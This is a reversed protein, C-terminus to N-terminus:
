PPTRVCERWDLALIRGDHGNCSCIKRVFRKGLADLVRAPVTRWDVAILETIEKLTNVAAISFAFRCNLDVEYETAALTNGLNGGTKCTSYLNLRGSSDREKSLVNTYVGAEDWGIFIRDHADCCEFLATALELTIDVSEHGEAVAVIGADAMIKVLYQKKDRIFSAVFRQIMGEADPVVVTVDVVTEAKDHLYDHFIPVNQLINLSPLFPAVKPSIHAKATLTYFRDLNNRRKKVREEHERALRSKRRDAVMQDFIAISKWAATQILILQDANLMKIFSYLACMKQDLCARFLYGM